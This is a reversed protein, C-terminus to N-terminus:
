VWRIYSNSSDSDDVAFALMMADALDPSRGRLKDRTKDKEEIRVKDKRGQGRGFETDIKSLEFALDEDDYAIKNHEHLLKLKWYYQARKNLYRDCEEQTTDEDPEPAESVNIGNVPLGDTALGDTVGGGVGIDDVNIAPGNEKDEAKSLYQNWVNKVRGITEDVREKASVMAIRFKGSRWRVGIVTRDTGKRAVDVGLSVVKDEELERELALQIYRQAILVQEGQDPFEGFVRPVVWPDNAGYKKVMREAWAPEQLKPYILKQHKVNPIDWSSITFTKFGSGPKFADAFPSSSDYPNGIMLVFSDASTLITEIMEFLRPDCGGAEDIIVFVKEEHLGPLNAEPDDTAFGEVFWKDGSEITTQTLKSGLPKASRNYHYHIEGWLARRVQRFTPATTIGLAHWAYHFYLAAIAAIFTKGSAHCSKVAVKKHEALSRLIARQKSWLPMGYLGPTWGKPPLDDKWVDIPIGLEHKVFLLPNRRYAKMFSYAKYM